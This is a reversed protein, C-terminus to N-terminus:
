SSFSRGVLAPRDLDAGSRRRRAEVGAVNAPDDDKCDFARHNLAHAGAGRDFDLETISISDLEM